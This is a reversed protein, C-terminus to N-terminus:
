ALKLGGRLSVTVDTPLHFGGPFFYVLLLLIEPELMQGESAERQRSHCETVRSADPHYSQELAPPLIFVVM